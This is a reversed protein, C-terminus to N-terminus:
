ERAAQSLAAIPTKTISTTYAKRRRPLTLTAFIRTESTIADDDAGDGERGRPRGVEEMLPGLELGVVRLPERALLLAHLERLPM